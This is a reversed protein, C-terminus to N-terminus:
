AKDKNVKIPLAFRVFVARNAGMSELSFKQAYVALANCGLVHWTSENKM